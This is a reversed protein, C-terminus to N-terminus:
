CYSWLDVGLVLDLTEDQSLGHKAGIRRLLANEDSGEGRELAENFENALVYAEESPPICDTPAKRFKPRLNESLAYGRWTKPNGEAAKAWDGSPAWELVGYAPIAERRDYRVAISIAHWQASREERILQNALSLLASRSIPWDKIEVNMALRKTSGLSVDRRQVVKYSPLKEIAKPSFTRRVPSPSPLQMPSASRNKRIATSTPRPVASKLPSPKTSPSTTSRPMPRHSPSQEVAKVPGEERSVPVPPAKSAAIITLTLSLALLLGGQKRSAIKLSSVSGKAVAVLSVGLFFLGIYFALVAM